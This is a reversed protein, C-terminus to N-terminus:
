IPGSILLHRARDSNVKLTFALFIGPFSCCASLIVYSCLNSTIHIAATGITVYVRRIFLSLDFCDCVLVLLFKTQDSSRRCEASSTLDTKSLGVFLQMCGDSRDDNISFQDLDM